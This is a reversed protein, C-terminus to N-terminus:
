FHNLKHKEKKLNHIGVLLGLGIAMCEHVLVHEQRANCTMLGHNPDERVAEYELYAFAKVAVRPDFLRLFHLFHRFFFHSKLFVAVCNPKLKISKFQFLFTYTFSFTNM